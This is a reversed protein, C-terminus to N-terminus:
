KRATISTPMNQSLMHVCEVCSRRRRVATPVAIRHRKDRARESRWPLCATRDRDSVSTGGWQRM